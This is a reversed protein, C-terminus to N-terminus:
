VKFHAGMGHQVPYPDGNESGVIANTTHLKRKKPDAM